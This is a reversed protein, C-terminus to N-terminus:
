PALNFLVTHEGKNGVTDYVVVRLENSYEINGIERPVFAFSYPMAHASGLFIGNVFFDVREVAFHSKVQAEVLLKQTGIYTTTANPEVIVATPALEPRHVDDVDDPIRGWARPPLGHTGIWGQAPVEWLLFQPDNYPNSPAPGTPDNRDVWYLIEHPNPVVREEIMEPPTFM